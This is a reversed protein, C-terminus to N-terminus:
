LAAPALELSALVNLEASALAIADDEALLSWKVGTGDSSVLAFTLGLRASDAAATAANYDLVHVNAPLSRSIRGGGGEREKGLYVVAARDYVALMDVLDDYSNPELNPVSPLGFALHSRYVTAVGERSTLWGGKGERRGFHYFYLAGDKSAVISTCGSLEGATLILPMGTPLASIRLGITGENGNSVRLVRVNSSLQQGPGWKGLRMGGTTTSTIESGLWSQVFGHLVGGQRMFAENTLREARDMLLDSDIRVYDILLASPLAVTRKGGIAGRGRLVSIDGHNLRGTDTNALTHRSATINPPSFNWLLPTEPQAKWAPYLDSIFSRFVLPSIESYAILWVLFTANLPNHRREVGSGVINSIDFLNGLISPSAGEIPRNALASFNTSVLNFAMFDDFRAQEYNLNRHMDVIADVNVGIRAQRSSSSTSRNSFLLISQDELDYGAQYVVDNTVSLRRIEDRVRDIELLLESVLGASSEGFFIELATMIDSSGQHRRLQRRCVDINRLSAKVARDLLFRIQRANNEGTAVLNREPIRRFIDPAGGRGPIDVWIEWRGHSNLRIPLTYALTRPRQPNVLRWSNLTDDWRVMYVRDDQVIFNVTRDSSRPDIYIRSFRGGEVSPSLNEPTLKPFQWEANLTRVVAGGAEDSFSFVSRTGTLVSAPRALNFRLIHSVARRVPVPEFLEYLDLMLSRSLRLASIGTLAPLDRLVASWLKKGSLGALRRKIIIDSIGRYQARTFASLKGGASILASVVTFADFVLNGVNVNYKRDNVSFFIERYFPVVTFAFQQLGSPKYLQQKATNAIDTLSRQLSKQLLSILDSDSFVTTDEYQYAFYWCRKQDLNTDNPRYKRLFNNRLKPGELEDGQPMYWGRYRRYDTSFKNGPYALLDLAPNNKVEADPIIRSWLEGNINSVFWWQFDALQIVILKGPAPIFPLRGLCYEQNRNHNEIGKAILGPSTTLASYLRVSRPNKVLQDITLQSGMVLLRALRLAEFDRYFDIYKNFQEAYSEYDPFKDSDQFNTYSIFGDPASKEDGLFFESLEQESEYLRRVVSSPSLRQLATAIDRETRPFDLVLSIILGTMLLLSQGAESTEQDLIEQYKELHEDDALPQGHADRWYRIAMQKAFKLIRIDRYDGSAEMDALSKYDLDYILNILDEWASGIKEIHFKAIENINIAMEKQSNESDLVDQDIRIKIQESALDILADFRALSLAQVVQKKGELPFYNDFAGRVSEIAKEIGKRALILSESDIGELTAVSGPDRRRGLIEAYAQEYVEQDIDQVALADQVTQLLGAEINVDPVRPAVRDRLVADRRTLYNRASEIASSNLLYFVEYRAKMYTSLLDVSGSKVSYLLAFSLYIDLAILVSPLGQADLGSAVILDFIKRLNKEGSLSYKKYYFIQDRWRESPLSALLSYNTLFRDDASRRRRVDSVEEVSEVPTSLIEKLRIIEQDSLVGEIFQDLGVEAHRM